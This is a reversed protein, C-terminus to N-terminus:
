WQVRCEWCTDNGCYGDARTTYKLRIIHDNHYHSESHTPVLISNINHNNMLVRQLYTIQTQATPNVEIFLNISKGSLKRLTTKKHLLQLDTFAFVLSEMHVFFWIPNQNGVSEGRYCPRNVWPTVQGAGSPYARLQGFTGTNWQIPM